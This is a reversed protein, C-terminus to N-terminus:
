IVDSGRLCRLYRLVTSPLDFDKDGQPVLGGERVHEFCVHCLEELVPFCFAREKSSRPVNDNLVPRVTDPSIRHITAPLIETSLRECNDSVHHPMVTSNLLATSTLTFGFSM